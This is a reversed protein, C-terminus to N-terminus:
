SCKCLLLLCEILVLWLLWVSSIPVPSPRLYLQSVFGESRGHHSYRHYHSFSSFGVVLLLVPNLSVGRSPGAASEDGVPEIMGATRHPRWLFGSSPGSLQQAASCTALQPSHGQFSAHFGWVREGYRTGHMEEM